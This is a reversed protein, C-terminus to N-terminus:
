PNALDHTKPDIYVSKKCPNTNASEKIALQVIKELKEADYVTSKSIATVAFPFGKEMIFRNLFINIATSLSIGIAAAIAEAQKKTNDDIRASVNAM